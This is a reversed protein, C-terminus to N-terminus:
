CRAAGLMPCQESCMYFMLVPLTVVCRYHPKHGTGDTLRAAAEKRVSLYFKVINELKVSPLSLNRLYTGVLLTLDSKETLEDM